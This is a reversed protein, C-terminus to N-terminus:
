KVKVKKNGAKKIQKILKSRLKVPNMKKPVKVTLKANTGKLAKKGFTKLTKSQIKITKLNKCGSFAANGVKTVNSGITVKKLKKFGKFANANIETVTCTVGDVAVTSQVTISTSGNKNTGNVAIVTQKAADTVKYLVDGAVATRGAAFASVAKKTLAKQANTLAAALRVLEASDQSDKGAEAENYAAIFARWTEDTYNQQGKNKIAAASSLAENLAKQEAETNGTDGSGKTLGSQAEKLESSITNIRTIDKISVASEDISLAKNYADAFNKWSEATYNQGGQAYKEAAATVANKLENKAKDLELNQQANILNEKLANLQEFTATDSANQAQSLAEQFADWADQSYGNNQVADASTVAEELETKLDEAFIAQNAAMFGQQKPTDNSLTTDILIDAIAAFPGNGQESTDGRLIRIQLYNGQTGEAIPLDLIDGNSASDELNVEKTYTPATITHTSSNFDTGVIYQYRHVLGNKGSSRQQFAIRRYSSIPKTTQVTIVAPNTDSVPFATGYASHWLTAPNRDIANEPGEPSTTNAWVGTIEAADVVEDQFLVGSSLVTEKGDIVASASITASGFGVFYVKGTNDVRAVKPNSSSWTVKTDKDKEETFTVGFQLPREATSVETTEPAELIMGTKEIKLNDLIFDKYGSFDLAKGTLGNTEAGNGTSYIGIWNNGSNGATFSFGFNQTNGASAALSWSKVNNQTGDGLRVEYTKDSGMQYDFSVYYTKGPEFRFNQPITQYIMSERESLGNIKVSWDGDIVDDVKKTMFGAQTYKGHWESLHIRNDAVSGAGTGPGSIVFPWIGQVNNEFDNYLSTIYGNEDQSRIVDMKTPVVRIDDFYSAGTGADRSITLTAKPGDATFFVFMNQFCSITNETGGSGTHHQDSSVINQVFSNGAYNKGLTKSGNTVTVYANATSKNDVGIYLAYKQGATLNTLETAVSVEGELKLMHNASSYNNVIQATGAGNVTRHSEIDTDNFGMDYVYKSTQWDVALQAKEGKYVVYPTEAEATLTIQNDVVSVVQKDKKGEDTLKYVVVSSLGEWDKTLTWTTEGGTTNWHYLKQDEAALEEGGADWKWPILYTENGANSGDGGTPAGESVKVGNVTITRSRYDARQSYDNSKRQVTIETEDQADKTNKLVIEMEPKWSEGTALRVADGDTWDVVQYHQLYKTILNHRFMVKMYNDYSTRGQWGEFDTMNLGGLLPMQAAGDYSPYDAIWSDKQHNRLFRMVESNEGKSSYGGYGLDAAWHQLTSDYEQTPGWETAFRWGFRNIERALMRSYWASEGDVLSSAVGNGWVDVYIFDLNNGVQDYLEQFRQERKGTALDFAANIGIGQDLWNWGLSLGQKGGSLEDSFAKAETYMESCNVHVGFLAGMKKGETLLTNMEEAGGIRKGIDGYDPHGSDHGESGYGKLLVGQGLGETNLYVRKVGDLNTLFPNAAQSGFNMAIRYNVLNPVVECGVPNNMISRFAVAGDQWDIDGDGNEDGTVVVKASPMIEHEVVYTRNERIEKTADTYVPVVIKRDYYWQTSALGLSTGGGNLSSATALVRTNSAGGSAIYSAVHTGNYESNSWLGASLENNSIFGYMFDESAANGTLRMGDTVDFDRDGSIRTNSSMKAGKFHANTQSSRVSILSHNPIEITQVPHMEYGNADKETLKNEVKTIDFSATNKDLSIEATIVCDVDDGSKLNMEYVAKKASFDTTVDDSEVTIAQGNIKITNIEETQGYFIKGDLNYQVIYPFNQGVEATMEDTTLIKGDNILEMEGVADAQTERVDAALTAAPMAAAAMSLAMLGSFLKKFKHMKM